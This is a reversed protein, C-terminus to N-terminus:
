FPLSRKKGGKRKRPRKLDDDEVFDRKPNWSIPGTKKRKIKERESTM